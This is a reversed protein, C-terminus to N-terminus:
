HVKSVVARIKGTKDQPIRDVFEFDVSIDKRGLATYIHHGLQAVSNSTFGEGKVIEVRLLDLTEQTVKIQQVGSIGEFCPILPTGSVKGGDPLKIYDDSRGEIRQVIPLRRGCPCRKKGPVCIDGLNYRIVPMSYLDLCTVVTEGEEGPAVPQDHDLLETLVSDAALHYNGHECEFAINGCEVASYIDRLPVGFVAKVLDRTEQDLVEGASCVTKPHIGEINDRKIKRAIAKLASPYAALLDPGFEILEKIQVDVKDLVYIMRVQFLGLSQIWHKQDDEDRGLRILAYKDTIRYGLEMFARVMAMQRKLSDSPSLAIKVPIGTSGSTAYVECDKLDVGRAIREELSLDRLVEKTTIPIKALDSVRRIDTPKLGASDFLQRYYSVNQYAHRVLAQLKKEQVRQLHAANLRVNRRLQFFYWLAQLPNM